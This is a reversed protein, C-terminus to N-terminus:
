ESVVERMQQMFQAVSFRGARLECAGRMTRAYAPTMQAVAARISEVWGHNGGDQASILFGTEGAVVSELLGGEAAAIVPKGAAMSEVPSMGFDEDKAMYLTAIANGLLEHLCRESVWDTFTINPAHAALKQLRPLEPGGSTVVLKKDPLQLFANVLCDVRKLPDLRATSLYFNGQGLWKIAETNCPPYIVQADRQLYHHIRQQVNVSNTVLVDMQAVAAEYRPQLYTIFAQLLPRLPLPLRALYFDRQDYIFRPPTHCYLINRGQSQQVALPTYFGSYIVRDYSALFDSRHAFAHALKFQRWLPLRSFARLDHQQSANTQTALATLFPHASKAFGYGLDAPLQQALISSLRGGGELSEFYDHLVITKM